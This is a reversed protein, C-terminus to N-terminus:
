FDSKDRSDELKWDSLTPLWVDPLYECVVYNFIAASFYNSRQSTIM